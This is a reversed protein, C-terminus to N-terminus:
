DAFGVVLLISTASVLVLVPAAVVIAITGGRSPFGGADFGRTPKVVSSMSESWM